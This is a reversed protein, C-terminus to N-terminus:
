NQQIRTCKKKLQDGKHAKSTGVTNFIWESLLFTPEVFSFTNLSHDNVRCLMSEAHHVTIIWDAVKKKKSYVITWCHSFGSESSCLQRWNVSANWVLQAVADQLPLAILFHQTCKLAIVKRASMSMAATEQSVAPMASHFSTSDARATPSRAPVLTVLASPRYPLAAVLLPRTVRPWSQGKPAPPCQCPRVHWGLVGWSNQLSFM